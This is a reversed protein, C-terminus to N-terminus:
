QQWFRVKDEINSETDDQTCDSEFTKARKFLPAQKKVSTMSGKKEFAQPTQKKEMM